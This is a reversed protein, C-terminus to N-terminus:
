TLVIYYCQCRHWGLIGILNPTGETGGAEVAHLLISLAMWLYCQLKDGCDSIDPKNIQIRVIGLIMRIMVEKSEVRDKVV